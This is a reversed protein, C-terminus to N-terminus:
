VWSGQWLMEATPFWPRWPLSLRSGRVGGKTLGPVALPPRPHRMNWICLLHNSYCDGSVSLVQKEPFLLSFGLLAPQTDQPLHSLM